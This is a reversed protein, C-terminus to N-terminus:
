WVQNPLISLRNYVYICVYMSMYIYVDVIQLHM